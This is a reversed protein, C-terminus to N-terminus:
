DLHTIDQSFSSSPQVVHFQGSNFYAPTHYEPAPIMTPHAASELDFFLKEISHRVYAKTKNDLCSMREALSLCYHTDPSVNNDAKTPARCTADLSKQFSHM